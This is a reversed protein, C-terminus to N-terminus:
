VGGYRKAEKDLPHNHKDGFLLESEMEEIRHKLLVEARWAGLRYNVGLGIPGDLYMRSLIMTIHSCYFAILGYLISSLVYWKWVNMETMWNVLQHPYSDMKKLADKKNELIPIDQTDWLLTQHIVNSPYRGCASLFLGDFFIMFAYVFSIGLLFYAFTKLHGHNIGVAGHLGLGGFILGGIILYPQRIHRTADQMGNCTFVQMCNHSTCARAPAQGQLPYWILTAVITEVESFFFVAAVVAVFIRRPICFCAKGVQADETM